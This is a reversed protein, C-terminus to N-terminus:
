GTSSRRSGEARVERAIPASRSDFSGRNSGSSAGVRLEKTGNGPMRTGATAKAATAAAPAGPVMIVSNCSVLM